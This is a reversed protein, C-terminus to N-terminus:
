ALAERLRELASDLTDAQLKEKRIVGTYPILTRDGMVDLGGERTRLLGPGSVEIRTHVRQGPEFDRLASIAGLNGERMTEEAAERALELAHDLSDAQERKVESTHRVTIRWGRAM